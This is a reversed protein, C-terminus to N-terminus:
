DIAFVDNDEEEVDEVSGSSAKRIKEVALPDLKKFTHSCIPSATLLRAVATLLRVVATLQRAVAILLKAM